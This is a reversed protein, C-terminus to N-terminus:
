NFKSRKYRAKTNIKTKENICIKIEMDSKKIDM